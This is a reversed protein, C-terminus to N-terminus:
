RWLGVGGGTRAGVQFTIADLLNRGTDVLPRRKGKKRKITSAALPPPIHPGTSITRKVAAAAMEGVAALAQAVTLREEVVRRAALTLTKQFRDKENLFTRRLFSREPVRPVKGPRSGFEHTAAIEAKEGGGFVGVKVVTGGLQRELKSRLARFRTDDVGGVRSGGSRVRRAM